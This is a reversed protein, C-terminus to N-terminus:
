HPSWCEIVKEMPELFATSWYNQNGNEGDKKEFWHLGDKQGWFHLITLVRPCQEVEFSFLVGNSQGIIVRFACLYRQNLGNKYMYRFVTYMGLWFGGSNQIVPRHIHPKVRLFTLLAHPLFSSKSLLWQSLISPGTCGSESKYKSQFICFKAM